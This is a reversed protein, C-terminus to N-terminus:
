PQSAPLTGSFVFDWGKTTNNPAPNEWKYHSLGFSPKTLNLSFQGIPTNQPAEGVLKISVEDIEATKMRLGSNPPVAKTVRFILEVPAKAPDVVPALEDWLAIHEAYAQMDAAPAIKEADANLKKIRAHDKWLGYGFWAGIGLYVLAAVAVIALRQQRAKAERRAARVDAPLLKSRPEPLVPDPRPGVHVPLGFGSMSGANGGDSWVHIAGPKVQLGQIGLQGIALRVDRAFAEDPSDGASSTAQAYLLRGEKFFAFVWRGFEVWAAIADGPAQFARASLDFEKPTRTPLEGEGPTRLVVHILVASEEERSVVFTDSLQGGMPDARVGLREAHMSALDEFLSEDGSSARFPLAHLARVPFLMALHGAPLGTLDAARASESELARSFSGDAEKKWIEWGRAGPVLLSIESQKSM